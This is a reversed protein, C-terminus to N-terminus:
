QGYIRTDPHFAAWDFWFSETSIVRNLSQGQLPGALARGFIDWRSGTQDDVINTSTAHFSLIRGDFERDFVGTSGVDRSDAIIASDLHSLTGSEWFM